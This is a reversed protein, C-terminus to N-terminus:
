TAHVNLQTIIVLALHHVVGLRIDAVDTEGDQHLMRTGMSEGNLMKHHPRLYRLSASTVLLIALHLPRIKPGIQCQLMNLLHAKM